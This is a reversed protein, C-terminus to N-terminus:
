TSNSRWGMERKETWTILSATRWSGQTSLGTWCSFQPGLDQNSCKMLPDLGYVLVQSRVYVIGTISVLQTAKSIQWQSGNGSKTKRQPNIRVATCVWVIADIFHQADPQDKEVRVIIHTDNIYIEVDPNPDSGPSITSCYAVSTELRVLVTVGRSLVELARTGSEGWQRELFQGCTSCLLDGRRGTVTVFQRLFSQIDDSHLELMERVVSPLEWECRLWGQWTPGVTVAEPLKAPKHQGLSLLLALNGGRVESGSWDASFRAFAEEPSERSLKARYSISPDM